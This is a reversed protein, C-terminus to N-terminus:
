FGRGPGGFTGSWRCNGERRPDFLLVLSVEGRRVTLEAPVAGTRAATVLAEWAQRTGTVPTGNVGLLIDGPHLGQGMALPAPAALVVRAQGEEWRVQLTGLLVEARPGLAPSGRPHTRPPRGPRVLRGPATWPGGGAEVLVDGRAIGLAAAASGERVQAAAVYPLTTGDPLNLSRTTLVLGAAELAHMNTWLGAQLATVVLMVGLTFLALPLALFAGVVVAREWAGAAGKM